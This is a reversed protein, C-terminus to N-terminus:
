QMADRQNSEKQVSRAVHGFRKANKADVKADKATLTKGEIV